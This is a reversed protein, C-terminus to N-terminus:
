ERESASSTINWDLFIDFMECLSPWGLNPCFLYTFLLIHLHRILVETSSNEAQISTSFGIISSNRDDLEV